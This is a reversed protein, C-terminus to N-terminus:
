NMHLDDAMMATDTEWRLGLNLTLNRMVTWDDQAFGSFYYMHRLLHITQFETFGTVFGTLMTALGSGGSFSTSTTSQTGTGNASFAFAGSVTSQQLDGHFSRRVEAGFKLQHKGITWSYNDIFQ